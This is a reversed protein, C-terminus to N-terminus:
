GREATPPPPPPQMYYAPKHITPSHDSFTSGDDFTYGKALTMRNFGSVFADFKPHWFMKIADDGDMGWIPTGDRPAESIPKWEPLLGAASLAEVISAINRTTLYEVGQEGCGLVINRLVAVAKERESLTPTTM